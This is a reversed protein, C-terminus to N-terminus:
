YFDKDSIGVQEAISIPKYNDEIDQKLDELEEKLRDVESDLDEICGILDGVSILDKNFYKSIWENVDTAKIYINDM